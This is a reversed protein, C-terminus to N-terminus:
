RDRGKDTQKGTDRKLAHVHVCVCAQGKTNPFITMIKQTVIAQWLWVQAEKNCRYTVVHLDQHECHPLASRVSKPYQSLIWSPRFPQADDLRHLGENWRTFHPLWLLRWFLATPILLSLSVLARRLHQHYHHTDTHTRAQVGLSSSLHTRIFLFAFTWPMSWCEDGNLRM